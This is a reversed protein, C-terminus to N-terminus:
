RKGLVSGLFALVRRPRPRLFRTPAPPNLTLALARHDGEDIRRRAATLEFGKQTEELPLRHTVLDAVLVRRARILKLAERLDRTAAAYTSVLKVPKKWFPFVEFGVETGPAMIGYLLITGGKRVTKLAQDVLAPSSATPIVYDVGEGNTLGLVVAEVTAPEVDGQVM